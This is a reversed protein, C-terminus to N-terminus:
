KRLVGYTLNNSEMVFIKKMMETNSMERNFVMIKLHKQKALHRVINIMLTTKGHGPRGGLVTLEKRTMGGAPKDLAWFNYPIINSGTKMASIAEDVVKDTNKRLEPTLSILEESLRRHKELLKSTTEYKKYSHKYLSYVSKGIERQIHKEWVIKSYHEINATTITDKFLGTIYYNNQEGYAEKYASGVTIADIDIHKRYLDILVKWVKKTDEHYFAKDNKIWALGKEITERGGSLCAGLIAEEADLNSAPIEMNKEQISKM